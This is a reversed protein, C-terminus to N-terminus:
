VAGHHFRENHIALLDSTFGKWSLSSFNIATDESLLKADILSQTDHHIVPNESRFDVVLLCVREYKFESGSAILRKNIANFAKIYKEVKPKKTSYDVAKRKMASVDYEPVAIMYVEGMVVQPCRVHLNQAEAITREFLTDFNKDLSSIQSRVNVVITKSTFDFGFADSSKDLLGAFGEEAKKVMGDPKVCIDQKKQKIFGTLKLEGSSKGLAPALLKPSIGAEVFATKVAEHIMGIPRGSRIMANKGDVGGSEISSDLLDKFGRVAQEMSTLTLM